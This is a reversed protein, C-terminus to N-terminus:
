GLQSEEAREVWAMRKILKQKKKNPAQEGRRSGFRWEVM